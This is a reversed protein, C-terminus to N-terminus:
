TSAPSCRRRSTAGCSRRRRRRRALSRDRHVTRRTGCARRRRHPVPERQQRDRVRLLQRRRASQPRLRVRGSRRRHLRRHDPRRQAVGVTSAPACGGTAAGALLRTGGGGNKEGIFQLARTLNARTAPVSVPSFTESGSAFVVINFTDSPRLVNVLDGMLKKATDLPFGYMSGSVDIVFIYERPPM